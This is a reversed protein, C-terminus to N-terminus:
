EIYLCENVVQWNFLFAIHIENISTQSRIEMHKDIEDMSKGMNKGIEMSGYFTFILITVVIVHSQIKFANIWIPSSLLLLFMFLPAFTLFSTELYPIVTQEFSFDFLLFFFVVLLFNLTPNTFITFFCCFLFNGLNSLFKKLKKVGHQMCMMWADTICMELWTEIFLFFIIIM